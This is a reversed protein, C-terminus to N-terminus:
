VLLFILAPPNQLVSCFNLTVTISPLCSCLSWSPLSLAYVPTRAWQWMPFFKLRGRRDWISLYLWGGVKIKNTSDQAIWLSSFRQRWLRVKHWSLIDRLPCLKSCQTHAPMSHPVGGVGTRLLPLYHLHSYAQLQSTPNLHQSWAKCATQVQIDLSKLM